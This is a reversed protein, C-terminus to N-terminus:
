GQMHLMAAIMQMGAFGSGPWAHAEDVNLLAGDYCGYKWTQEPPCAHVTFTSGLM